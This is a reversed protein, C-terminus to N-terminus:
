TASSFSIVLEWNGNFANLKIAAEIETREEMEGVCGVM